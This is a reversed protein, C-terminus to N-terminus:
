FKRRWNGTDERRKLNM